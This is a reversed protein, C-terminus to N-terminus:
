GVPSYNTIVLESIVGRRRANSNIARKAAVRDILFGAYLTDFFTDDPDENSPDSNSLMIRAGRRDLIRIFEALRVQDDDGFGARYYGTFQATSSIPRYPPDLYVFTREDVLHECGTFDGHHIETRDLVASALRLNEADLIRPSRYRGFPVNFDGRANVRYLGNFCTHNLFVLQAAREVWSRTYRDFRTSERGANFAERVGYFYTSRGSEDLAYFAREMTGLVEILDEVDRKVVTYALVLEENIDCIDSREFSYWQNVAFFVAGGGVFPELYRANGEELIEGPMRRHLQDLM